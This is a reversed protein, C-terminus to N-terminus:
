VKNLFYKLRKVDKKSLIIDKYYLKGGLFIYKFAKKIRYTLGKPKDTVEVVVSGKPFFGDDRHFSVFGAHGCDCRFIIEKIM